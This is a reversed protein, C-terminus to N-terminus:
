ADIGFLRRAESRFEEDSGTLTRLAELALRRFTRRAWALHNTVQTVPLNYEEALQEYTPRQGTTAPHLDHREFMAYHVSKGSTRCATQLLAAARELLSRLCERDFYAEEDEPASSRSFERDAADFDLSFLRRDGGRKQRSAAKRENTVYGDACLRLYTRFSARQAVYREVFGKELACVFFGQTLDKAEENSAQWKMRIYKYVPKWYAAVLSNLAIERAAADNGGVADIVSHRTSPFRDQSGGIHTDYDM